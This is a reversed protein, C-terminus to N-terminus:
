FAFLKVDLKKFALWASFVVFFGISLSYSIAGGVAGYRPILVLCTVANIIVTFSLVFALKKEYGLMMLITDVPGFTSQTLRSLTMILLAIYAGVYEEGFAFGLIQKGFIIFFLAVPFTVLFCLLAAKRVVKQLETRVELGGTKAVKPAIASGIAFLGLGIITAGQCAVRFLATEEPQHWIGILLVGLNFNLVNLTTVLGLNISIQLKNDEGKLKWPPPSKPIKPSIVKLLAITGFFILAGSIFYIIMVSYPNFYDQEVFYLGIVGLVICFPRALFEQIQGLVIYGQGHIKAGNVNAMSFLAAIGISLVFLPRHYSNLREPIFITLCILGSAIVFIYILNMSSGWSWLKSLGTLDGTDMKKSTERLILLPIGFQMFSLALTILSFHFAFIGFQSVGLFRALLITLLLSFGVSTVRLFLSYLSTTFQPDKM